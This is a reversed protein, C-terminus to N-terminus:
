NESPVKELSDIVLKEIMAKKAQLKLGLQQELAEMLTLGVDSGDTRPPAGSSLRANWSLMFDYNGKLGTEDVVPRQVQGALYQGLDPMTTRAGRLRALDGSIAMITGPPLVPYGDGDAKLPGAPRAPPAEDPAAPTEPAPSEKFKPGSKGVIMGFVQMEKKERHAKLKFREALLHQLMARLDDKTAGAPVNAVVNFRTFFMWEPYTMQYFKLGYAEGVISILPYNEITLRAPDATGPGGRKATIRADPSAPRISAVEFEQGAALGVFLFIVGCVKGIM